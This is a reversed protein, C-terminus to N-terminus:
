LVVLRLFHILRLLRLRQLAETLVICVFSLCELPLAEQLRLCITVLLVPGDHYAILEIAIPLPRVLLM